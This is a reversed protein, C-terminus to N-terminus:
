VLHIKLALYHLIDSYEFQKLAEKLLASAQKGEERDGYGCNGTLNDCDWCTEVAILNTLKWRGFRANNEMDSAIQSWTSHFARELLPLDLRLADPKKREEETESILFSYGVMEKFATPGMEDQHKKYLIWFMKRDM